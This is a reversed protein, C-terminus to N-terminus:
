TCTDGEEHYRGKDTGSEAQMRKVIYLLINLMEFTIETSRKKARLTSHATKSAPLVLVECYQLLM